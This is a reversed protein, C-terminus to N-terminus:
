FFRHGFLRLGGKPSASDEETKKKAQKSRAPAHSLVVRENSTRSSNFQNSKLLSSRKSGGFRFSRIGRVAEEEDDEDDDFDDIIEQLIEKITAFDPRSNAFFSWCKKMLWQLEVPWWDQLPPRMEGDVVKHMFEERSFGDFAFDM